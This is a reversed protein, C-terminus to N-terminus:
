LATKIKLENRKKIDDLDIFFVVGIVLNLNGKIEGRGPGPQEVFVETLSQSM